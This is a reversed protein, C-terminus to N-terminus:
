ASIDRRPEFRSDIFVIAYGCLLFAAAIIAANVLTHPWGLTAVNLFPYAYRGTAAGRVLAYALYSLPYIAWLLPDRRTLTGKPTFALWYIVVMVPTVMHLLANAITGTRSLEMIGHLLLGYVVGVLLISLMTGAILSPRPGCARAIATFVVAILINTLITFYGCIIWLTLLASHTQAYTDACQFALGTWAILAILAAAIRSTSTQM